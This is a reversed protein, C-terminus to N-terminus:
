NELETEYHAEVVCMCRKVNPEIQGMNSIRIDDRGDKGSLRRLNGILVPTVNKEYTYINICKNMCDTALGANLWIRYNNINDMQSQVLLNIEVYIRWRTPSKQWFYPGDFRVEIVDKSNVKSDDRHQGEIILPVTTILDGFHKNISAAIWLPWKQNIM